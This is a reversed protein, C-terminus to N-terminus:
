SIKHTTVYEGRGRRRSNNNIVFRIDEGALVADLHLNNLPNGGELMGAVNDQQAKNLILEGSSVNALLGDSYNNGPIIGGEAYSGATASKIASITSLMTGLGGAIAAIWGFVGLNSDKASAKAFGLAISAIAQGVIGAVKASPDELGQLASGVSQVAAQAATWSERTKEGEKVINGTSFKIQIPDKGMEKLKANLEDLKEQLVSDDVDINDFIDSWIGSLDIGQVGNEIATKLMSSLASLDAEQETLKDFSISGIEAENIQKRLESLKDSINLNTFASKDATVDVSANFTVTRNDYDQVLALLQQAAETTDAVATITYTQDDPKTLNVSEGEVANVKYFTDPSWEAKPKAAEVQYKPAKPMAEEVQYKQGKPMAAKLAELQTADVEITFTATEGKKLEGKLHAIEESVRAIEAKYAIWEDTSAAAAHQKQLDQLQKTLAPLGELKVVKGQAEDALRKIEANREQLVKIESQVGIKRKAIEALSEASAAKEADSLRRYEDTLEEIAKQNAHLETEDKKSGVKKGSGSGQLSYRNGRFQERNVSTEEQVAQAYINIGRQIDTERETIAKAIAYKRKQMAPLLNVDFFQEEGVKTRVGASSQVYIGRTNQAKSWNEFKEVTQRYKDFEAQGKRMIGEVAAEISRDSVSVGQARVNNAITEYVDKAGAKKGQEVSQRQLAALRETAAKIQDDVNQGQQKLLRLKQIEAQVIAIAAANNSKISGLRDLADYLDRGGQVAKEINQFLNSWNGTNLADLFYDYANKAGSVTRGWEDINSESQFFADKVVELAGKAAQVGINFLKMTDITFSLKGAFGEIEAGANSGFSGLSDSFSKAEDAALKYKITLQDITQLYDKGIDEKQEDTLRNYQATLQELVRKYENMQGKATGATSEMDGMMQVFKQMKESGKQLAQQLGGQANVFNSLSSQAKKIGADWQGTGVALELVSKAM